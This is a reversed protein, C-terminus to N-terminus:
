PRFCISEKRQPTKIVLNSISEASTGGIDVKLIRDKSTHIGTNGPSHLPITVEVNVADVFAQGPSQSNVDGIEAEGRESWYFDQYYHGTGKLQLSFDGGEAPLSVAMDIYTAQLGAALGDVATM